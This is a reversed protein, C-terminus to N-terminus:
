SIEWATRRMGVSDQSSMSPPRVPERGCAAALAFGPAVGRADPNGYNKM